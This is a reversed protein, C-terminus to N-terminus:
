GEAITRFWCQRRVLFDAHDALPFLLQAIRATFVAHFCAPLRTHYLIPFNARFCGLYGTQAGALARRHYVPLLSYDFGAKECAVFAERAVRDAISFIYDSIARVMGLPNRGADNLRQSIVEPDGSLPLFPIGFSNVFRDFRHPAALKVQHGAKQLGVALALFPQVDGRSGYTLITTRM